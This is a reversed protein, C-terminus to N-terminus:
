ENGAGHNKPDVWYGIDICAYWPDSGEILVAGEAIEYCTEHYLKELMAGCIPPKRKLYTQKRKADDM